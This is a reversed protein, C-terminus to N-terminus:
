AKVHRDIEDKLADNAGILYAEAIALTVHQWNMGLLGSDLNAAPAAKEAAWKTLEPGQKM